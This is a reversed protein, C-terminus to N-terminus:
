LRLVDRTVIINTHLTYSHYYLCHIHTPSLIIDKEKKETKKGREKEKEGRKEEREGCERM